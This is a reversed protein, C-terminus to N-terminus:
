HGNLHEGLRLSLATLTLTPNVASGTPMVANSCVYLNETGHVRLESDTVGDTDSQSMRCTGTAHHGGPEDVQATNVVYGMERIVRKLIEVRAESNAIEARTRYFLVKTTPLGWRTLTEGPLVRNTIRGPEEVFAQLEMIREGKLRKMIESHQAKKPGETMAKAFDLHPFKRNKFLFLKGFRQQEPTDYTRSMLTPFDYEQIWCDPNEPNVGRVRLISHSVLYCGVLGHDNGIGAPWNSNASQILLKPSEYAGACIVVTRAVITTLGNKPHLYEAGSATTRSEMLIKKVPATELVRLNPYKPKGNSRVAGRLEDLADQATYRAGLPCYKCTGTAMCKRYRALPMKGPEIGLNEFARIMEGDAATWDFPPMPYPQSPRTEHDQRNRHTDRVYNWSESDDGCVALRKEAEYYFDHLTDYTIPWDAGLGTNSRLHFDEPKFRLSWGGWHLTSGGYAILRNDHCDWNVNSKTSYEEPKDVAPNYVATGSTVYDWWARRDQSPYIKGAELITIHADPYKSLIKEALTVAAVGSGIFLYQTEEPMQKEHLHNASRVLETAWGM